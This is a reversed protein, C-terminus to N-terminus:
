RFWWNWHSPRIRLRDHRRVAVRGEFTVELEHMLYAIRQFDSQAHGFHLHHVADSVRYFAQKLDRYDRSTHTARLRRAEAQHHFHGAEAELERLRRLAWPDIGRHHSGVSAAQRYLHRTAQELEHALARVASARYPDQVYRDSHAWASSGALLLCVTLLVPKRTM